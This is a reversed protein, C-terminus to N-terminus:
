AGEGCRHSGLVDGYGRASDHGGPDSVPPWRKRSHAAAPVWSSCASYSLVVSPRVLRFRRIASETDTHDHLESTTALPFGALEFGDAHEGVVFRSEPQGSAQRSMPWGVRRRRILSPMRAARTIELRLQRTKLTWWSRERRGPHRNM